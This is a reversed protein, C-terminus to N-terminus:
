VAGKRALVTPVTKLLITVDHWLSWNRVYWVDLRVRYDYTTDSRGSVQWLGTIGPRAEHYFSIANGYRAVEADVIPRPGVLSMEGRLVNLLQPLEDLSTSRLFKGIPTIRPDDRLKQTEDWEARAAPDRALLDQLVRDSDAVMSRFKLCRFQRGRVGIRRHGFLAPGGDRRVLMAIALLLPSALVLLMACTAQDFLLKVFRSVPRALNNAYLMMVVDHTFFYQCTFDTVPLGDLTPVIAFPLGERQLDQVVRSAAPTMTGRVALVAFEAEHRELLRAAWGTHRHQPVVDTSARAVVHYGLGRDSGFAEIIPNAAAEDGIIVTRMRWFGLMDLVSRAGARMLLLAPILLVWRAVTEFGAIMGFVVVRMFCDCLMAVIVGMVITRVETWVPIRSTYHGAATYYGLLGAIALVTGWGHWSWGQSMIQNYARDLPPLTVAMHLVFAATAALLLALVDAIVLTGARVTAPKLHRTRAVRAIGEGQVQM